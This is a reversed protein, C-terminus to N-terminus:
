MKKYKGVNLSLINELKLDRHSIKKSHLFATAHVIQFLQFKANEEKLKGAASDKVVQDFLDGGAAFEMVIFIDRTCVIAELIGTICPHKIGRLVEVERMLDPSSSYEGSEIWDEKIRKVARLAASSIM